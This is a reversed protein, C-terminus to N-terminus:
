WLIFDMSPFLRFLVHTVCGFRIHFMDQSDILLRRVLECVYKNVFARFSFDGLSLINVSEHVDRAATVAIPCYSLHCLSWFLFEPENAEESAREFDGQTGNLPRSLLRFNM